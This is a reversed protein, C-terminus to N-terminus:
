STIAATKAGTATTSGAANWVTVRGRLTHGIDASVLMHLSTVAGSIDVCSNGASDCRLWQYSQITNIWHNTWTGENIYVPNYGGGVSYSTGTIYPATSVAPVSTQTTIVPSVASYAPVSPTGNSATVGLRITNGIDSGNQVWSSVASASWIAGSNVGVLYYSQTAGSIDVCSAGSSNCRQWQYTYGTPGNTWTGLTQDTLINMQEFWGSDAAFTPVATNVPAVHAVAATQAFEATTTGTANTASVVLRLPLGVDGSTAVYTTTAAGNTSTGAAGAIDFCGSTDAPAGDAYHTAAQTASLAVDTYIAVDDLM